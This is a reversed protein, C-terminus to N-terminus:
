TRQEHVANVDPRCCRMIGSIFERTAAVRDIVSWHRLLVDIYENPLFAPEDKLLEYEMNTLQEAKIALDMFGKTGYGGSPVGCIHARIITFYRALDEKEELSLGYFTTQDAYLATRLEEVTSKQNYDADRNCTSSEHFIAQQENAKRSTEM